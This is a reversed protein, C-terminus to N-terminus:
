VKLAKLGAEMPKVERGEDELDKMDTVGAAEPKDVGYPAYKEILYNLTTTVRIMVNANM